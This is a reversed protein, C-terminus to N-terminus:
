VANQITVSFLLHRSFNVLFFHLYICVTWQLLPFLAPFLQLSFAHFVSAQFACEYSLPLLSSPLCQYTHNSLWISFVCIGHNTLVIEDCRSSSITWFLLVFQAANEIKHNFILGKIEHLRLNQNQYMKTVLSLRGSSALLTILFLAGVSSCFFLSSM